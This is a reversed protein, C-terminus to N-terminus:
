RYMRSVFDQGRKALCQTVTISRLRHLAFFFFFFTLFRMMSTALSFTCRSSQCPPMVVPLSVSVPTKRQFCACMRLRARARARASGKDKWTLEASLVRGYHAAGSERCISFTCNPEEWWVKVGRTPVMKGGSRGPPILHQPPLPVLRRLLLLLLLRPAASFFM